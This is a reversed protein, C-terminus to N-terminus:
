EGADRIFLVVKQPDYIVCVEDGESFLEADSQLQSVLIAGTSHLLEYRVWGGGFIVTHIRVLLHPDRNKSRREIKLDEPRIGCHVKTQPLLRLGPWRCQLQLENDVRIVYEDGHSAGDIVGAFSNLDGVFQAAFMTTPQRYLEKPPAVQVVQAEHVIAVRNSLIFAEEQDHTVYIATIGIERQLRRLEFGLQQRLQRDLAGLPEDLLLVKPHFVIARALAVRQQQGGSLQSPYRDAFGGLGVLDLAEQVRRKVARKETRRIRLPFAVNGGVSLHPFLAYHQFVFGVDRREPPLNTVDRNAIWIRGASPQLMGAVVQLLTTKGSGSPGLLTLFEGPYVELDIDRLAVQDGYLHSVGDVRVGAVERQGIRPVADGTDSLGATLRGSVM